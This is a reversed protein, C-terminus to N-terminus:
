PREQNALCLTGRMLCFSWKDGQASKRPRSQNDDVWLIKKSSVSTSPLAGVLTQVAAVSSNVANNVEQANPAIPNNTAPRKALSATTVAALAQGQQALTIEVGAVKITSVHADSLVQKISGSFLFIVLLAILPWAFAGIL